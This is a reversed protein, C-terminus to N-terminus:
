AEEAVSRKSGLAKLATTVDAKDGATGTWSIEITDKAKAHKYTGKFTKSRPSEVQGANALHDPKIDKTPKSSLLLLPEGDITKTYLVFQGKDHKDVKTKQHKREKALLKLLEPKKLEQEGEAALIKEFIDWLDQVVNDYFRDRVANLESRARDLDIGASEMHDAAGTFTSADRNSPVAGGFGANAAKMGEQCTAGLEKAYASRTITVICEATRSKKDKTQLPAPIPVAGGDLAQLMLWHTLARAEDPSRDAKLWRQFEQFETATSTKTKWDAM